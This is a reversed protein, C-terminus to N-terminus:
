RFRCFTRILCVLNQYMNLIAKADQPTECEIFGSELPAKSKTDTLYSISIISAVKSLRTRLEELDVISFPTTFHIQGSSFFILSIVVHFFFCPLLRETQSLDAVGSLSLLFHSFLFCLGSIALDVDM